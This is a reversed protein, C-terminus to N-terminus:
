TGNGVYRAPWFVPGFKVKFMKGYILINQVNDPPLNIDQIKDRNFIKAITWHFFSCCFLLESNM